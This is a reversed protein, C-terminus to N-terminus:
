AVSAGSSAKGDDAMTALLEEVVRVVEDAVIGPTYVSPVQVVFCSADALAATLVRAKCEFFTALSLHATAALSDILDASSSSLRLHSAGLVREAMWDHDRAMIRTRAGEYPEVFAAMLLPAQPTVDVDPFAQRPAVVVHDSSMRRSADALRPHKVLRQQVMAGLRELPSSFRPPVLARGARPLVHAYAARDVDGVPIPREFNLLRGDGTLFAWADGMFSFGPRRMLRALTGAMGVGAAAPLAIARGRYGVTAAHIMATDRGAMVLDLVPLVTATTAAGNGNLRYRGGERVVQLHRHRFLVASSNHVLGHGMVAADLMLEIDGGVVIDHAVEHEVAFSRLTMQLHDAAPAGPNVRMGVGHIDFDLWSQDSTVDM